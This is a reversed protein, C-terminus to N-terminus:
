RAGPWRPRSANLMPKLWVEWGGGVVLRCLTAPSSECARQSHPKAKKEAVASSMGGEAPALPGSSRSGPVLQLRLQVSFAIGRRWMVDRPSQLRISPVGHRAAATVNSRGEKERDSLTCIEGAIADAEGTEWASHTHRCAAEDQSELPGDKDEVAWGESSAAIECTSLCCAVNARWVGFCETKVAMRKYKAM